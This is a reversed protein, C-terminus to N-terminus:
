LGEQQKEGMQTVWTQGMDVVRGLGVKRWIGAPGVAEKM